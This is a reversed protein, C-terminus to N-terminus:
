ATLLLLTEAGISWLRLWPIWLPWPGGFYKSCVTM